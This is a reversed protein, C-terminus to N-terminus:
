ASALLPQPRWQRRLMYAPYALLSVWGVQLVEDGSRMDMQRRYFENVRADRHHFRGDDPSKEFVTEAASRRFVFRAIDLEADPGVFMRARHHRDIEEAIRRHTASPAASSFPSPYVGEFHLAVNGLSSLV